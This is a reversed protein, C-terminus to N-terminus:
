RTALGIGYYSKQTSYDYRMGSYWMMWTGDASILSPSHVGNEDFDGAYGGELVNRESIAWDVGDSSSAVSIPGVQHPFGDPYEAFFVWYRGEAFVVCPSAVGTTDDVALLPNGPHKTFDTGDPSTAYALQLRLYDQSSIGEAQYWLKFMGDEYLVTPNSLGYYDCEGEDGYILIPNAPDRTWNIGDESLAHGLVYVGSLKSCGAYYMHYVGDVKVVTPSMVDKGDWSGTVGLGLAPDASVTWSVGDDTSTAYYIRSNEGAATASFWMKYVGEEYVVAPDQKWRTDEGPLGSPLVPNSSSKVWGYPWDGGGLFDCSLASFLVIIVSLVFARFFIFRM